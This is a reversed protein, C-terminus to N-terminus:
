AARPSVEKAIVAGEAREAVDLDYGNQLNLWLAASTGFYRALRLALSATISETGALVAALHAPEVRIAEALEGASLNEERLWDGLIEGPHLPDMRPSGPQDIDSFDILGAELEERTVTMM